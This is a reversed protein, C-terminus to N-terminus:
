RLIRLTGLPKLRSRGLVGDAETCLEPKLLRVVAVACLIEEIYVRPKALTGIQLKEDVYRVLVPNAYDQVDNQVVGAIHERVIRVPM